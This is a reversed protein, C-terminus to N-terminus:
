CSNKRLSLPGSEKLIFQSLTLQDHIEHLVFHSLVDFVKKDGKIKAVKFAYKLEIKFVNRTERQMYNEKQIKFM